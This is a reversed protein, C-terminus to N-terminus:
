YAIQHDARVITWPVKVSLRNLVTNLSLLFKEVVTRSAEPMIVISRHLHHSNGIRSCLQCYLHSRPSSRVKFNRRRVKKMKNIINSRRSPVRQWYFAMQKEDILPAPQQPQTVKSISRKAPKFYSGWLEAKIEKPRPDRLFVTWFVVYLIVLEMAIILYVFM